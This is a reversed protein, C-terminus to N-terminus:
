VSALLRDRTAMQKDSGNKIAKLDREVKGLSASDSGALFADDAAKKIANAVNLRTKADADECGSAALFLCAILCLAVMRIFHFKM